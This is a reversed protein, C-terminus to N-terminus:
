VDASVEGSRKKEEVRCTAQLHCYTCAGKIPDVRADGASFEAALRELTARWVGLLGDWDSAGQKALMNKTPAKVGEPMGDAGSGLGIFRAKGGRLQVFSLARVDELGCSTAYFPLQPDRPRAGQWKAVSAEGTKYDLVLRGGTALLDVRDPRVRLRLSGIQVERRQEMEEVAFDARRVETSLCDHLLTKVRKKEIELSQSLVPSGDAIVREAAQDIARSLLLDRESVGLSALATRDRLGRWLFFLSDHVFQGQQRPNLGASPQELRRAGLRLEAFARFPCQSQLQLARAGGPALFGNDCPPAIGDDVSELQPRREFIARARGDEAVKAVPLEKGQVYNDLLPSHRLVEDGNLVPWSLTVRGASGLMRTLVVRAFGLERAASGRPLLKARQIAHPLFPSPAPAPPWAGDHLGSIWLADFQLGSAELAGVVLVPTRESEPKFVASGVIDRLLGIAGALSLEGTLDGYGAMEELLERWRQRAQYEGSDLTREGPWGLEDLWGSLSVVWARPSQKEPWGSRRKVAAQLRKRLAPCACEGGQEEEALLSHQLWELSWRTGGTKRTKVDFAARRDAEMVADGLFQSRLLQSVETWLLPRGALSILDLAKAVLPQSSLPAGASISFLSGSDVGAGELAGPTLAETFIRRVQLHNAALEPVVVGVSAEPDAKICQLCWRAAAAMEAEFDAAAFVAVEAEKEEHRWRRVTLGLRELADLLYIQAPTLEDFGALFVGSPVPLIEGNSAMEALESPLSAEDIWGERQCRDTYIKAWENFRSADESAVSELEQLSIRWACVLDWAEMAAKAVTHAQILGGAVGSEEIIQEWIIRMRGAGLLRTKARGSGLWVSDYWIERMWESWSCVVPRAWIATAESVSDAHALTIERALRNSATVIREDRSIAQLVQQYNSM